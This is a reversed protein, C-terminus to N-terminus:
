ENINKLIQILLANSEETNLKISYTPMKNISIVIESKGNEDVFLKVNSVNKIDYETKSVSSENNEPFNFDRPKSSKSKINWKKDFDKKSLRNKDDEYEYALDYHGMKTKEKKYIRPNGWDYSNDSQNDGM